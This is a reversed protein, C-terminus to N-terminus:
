EDLGPGAASEVEEALSGFEAAAAEFRALQALRIEGTDTSELGAMMGEAASLLTELSEAMREHTLRDADAPRTFGNFRIPLLGARSILSSMRGVTTDYDAIRGDWDDNIQRGSVRLDAVDAALVGVLDAYARFELDADPETTTPATQETSAPDTEEGSRLTGYGVVLVAIVLISILTSRLVRQTNSGSPALGEVGEQEDWRPSPPEHVGAVPPDGVQARATHEPRAPPGEGTRVPAVFRVGCALCSSSGPETRTGCSHCFRITMPPRGESAAPRTRPTVMAETVPTPEARRLFSRRSDASRSEEDEPYDQDSGAM